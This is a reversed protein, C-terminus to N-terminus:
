QSSTYIQRLAEYIIVTGAAAASLSDVGTVMPIHVRQGDRHHALTWAEDSVGTTEGGIVLVNKGQEWNIDYHLISTQTNTSSKDTNLFLLKPLPCNIDNPPHPFPPPPIQFADGSQDQFLDSFFTLFQIYGPM